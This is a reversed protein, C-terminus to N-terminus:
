AFGEERDVHDLSGGAEGIRKGDLSEPEELEAAGLDIGGARIKTGIVEGGAAAAVDVEGEAGAGVLLGEAGDGAVEIMLAVVEGLVAGVQFEGDGGEGVGLEAEEEGVVM